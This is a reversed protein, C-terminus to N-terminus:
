LDEQLFLIIFGIQKKTKLGANQFVSIQGGSDIRAGSTGGKSFLDVDGFSSPDGSIRSEEGHGKGSGDEEEHENHGSYNWSLGWLWSFVSLNLSFM